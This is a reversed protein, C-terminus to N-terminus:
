AVFKIAVGIMLAGILVNVLGFVHLAGDPNEFVSQYARKIQRPFVAWAAGEVLFAGGFAILIIAGLSM